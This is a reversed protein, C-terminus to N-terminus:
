HSMEMWKGRALYRGLWEGWPIARDDLDLVGVRPHDRAVAARFIRM